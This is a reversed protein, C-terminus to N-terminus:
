TSKRKMTGLLAISFRFASETVFALQEEQTIANVATPSAGYDIYNFSGLMVRGPLGVTGAPISDTYILYVHDFAGTIFGYERLKRAMRAGVAPTEEPLHYRTGLGVPITPSSGEYAEFCRIDLILRESAV